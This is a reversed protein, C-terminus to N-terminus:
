ALLNEARSFTKRNRLNLFNLSDSQNRSELFNKFWLASKKLHRRLGDKYDVYVMGFRVAYGDNWEFNDLMSWGFYGKVNVGRRIAEQVFLLHDNYYDVRVNDELILMSDINDLQSVGNETLYIVPDNFKNKTYLLLELIGRPYVYLWSSGTKPGIPIGNRFSTIMACFDTSYSFNEKVCPVDAVYNATYYNVGIFDISGKLMLSQEQTFKPLREGVYTIMEVPYSGSVLPEMFWDYKFALARSAALSDRTLEANMPVMWETNLSIGIQGKQKMQYKDRYVKVAAAHALLQNHAVIYPETGSDGGTCNSSIWKSCRGPAKIGTTYGDNSITLPENLTIWHKVRDGFSSFSLEAYDRFDDVLNSSLFGSYEDELAQPLDWHFLTVFPEMGNSLVENILNNYYDIGQQNVGGSLHGRPLLRSWSISFRYSDFGLSKM